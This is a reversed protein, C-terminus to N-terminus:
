LAVPERRFRPGLEDKGGLDDGRAAKKTEGAVGRQSGPANRQGNAPCSGKKKLIFPQKNPEQGRRM